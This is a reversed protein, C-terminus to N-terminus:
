KIVITESHGNGGEGDMPLKFTLEGSVRKSRVKIDYVVNGPLNVKVRGTKATNQSILVRDSGNPTIIVDADKVAKGAEDTVTLVLTGYASVDFGGSLLKYESVDILYIDREGFSDEYEAALLMTKNNSTMSFTSEENVTNIPYGLNVPIGWQGNVFETRFIDYSGLCQHGDSAFFLTKGNPHIFVFKEDLETNILAGLNKPKSWSGGSNKNSTYIDGQGQGEPRESIFYVTNGDATISISSEFYSTNIPKPLKEPARWAEDHKNYVSKFIDGQSNQNNKYIFMESGDPSVSLVADYTPTNVAGEVGRAIAWEKKSENWTSFFIDEYFKYDGGEDIEGGETDSRRSTFVIMKGDATISPAYDDFRSNINRGMNEISANVPAAMMEKAFECERIFKQADEFEFSRSNPHNKIFLDYFYEASDLEALRHHIKGYFFNVESNVKPDVAVARSLYEKALDYRKLRYHCQATWYLAPANTPESQLIERYLILAGRMNNENFEHRAALMKAPLATKDLFGTDSTDAPLEFRSASVLQSLALFCLCLLLRM